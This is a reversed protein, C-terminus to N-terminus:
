LEHGHALSNEESREEEGSGRKGLVLVEALDLDLGLRHGARDVHQGTRAAVDADRGALVADDDDVVLERGQCRLDLFGELCDGVLRDPEDEVRVEVAIVGASVLDESALAGDDRVLVDARAQGVARLTRPLLVGGAGFPASGITVKLSRAVTCKLPSSIRAM